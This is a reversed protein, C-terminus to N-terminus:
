GYYPFPFVTTSYHPLGNSSTTGDYQRNMDRLRQLNHGQAYTIDFGATSHSFVEREGGLTLRDTYPANFNPSIAFVGPRAPTPIKTFDIREVGQVQFSSGWGPSLPDTPQLVTNGSRPATIIYQTGRLGNSTFLQAFLIAPTRSWFRGASFRVATKPDPAWSLGLRPSFQKNADPIKTSLKFSGDPNRDNANLVPADPNNLGEWRLGYSVTLNPRVFWQDQLFLATEKQGFNARGAQISTLGGLGGFQRYQSW